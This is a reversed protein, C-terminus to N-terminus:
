RAFTVHEWTQISAIIVEHSGDTIEYGAKIFGAEIGYVRLAVVTQDVLPERHVVFLTKHGQRTNANMIYAAMATKGAGTPAYLLPARRGIQWLHEIQTICDVQYDRLTFPKSKEPVVSLLKLSDVTSRSSAPDGPTTLTQSM